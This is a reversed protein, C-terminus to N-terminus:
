QKGKWKMAWEMGCALTWGVFAFLGIMAFAIALGILAIAHLFLKMMQVGALKRRRTDSRRM